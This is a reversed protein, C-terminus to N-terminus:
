RLSDRVRRADEAYALANPSLTPEDLAPDERKAVVSPTANRQGEDLPLTSTTVQTTTPIRLINIDKPAGDRKPASFWGKVVDVVSKQKPEEGGGIVEDALGLAVVEDPALWHGRGNNEAMIEAFKEASGGSRAAYLAAIREDTKELLSIYEALDATNGEVSCSSRHILYLASSAIYRCGPSAAQAIITAASATYGYCRTVIKADLSALSEYILLADNVDGGTSRINVIVEEADIARIQALKESFKEYTAVSQSSKSFQSEEPVGIIGEIDITCVSVNNTIEIKTKM